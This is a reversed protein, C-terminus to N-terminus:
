DTKVRDKHPHKEDAYVKLRAMRKKHLRNKPLMGSVALEIVRAPNDEMMKMFKIEKLGGPYGSHRYYVKQQSKRGTLLVEKANVVVVNDGMDMHPAYKVKHKGILLRAVHSSMRGLVQDKADILHWNRKIDKAKPQYTKMSM